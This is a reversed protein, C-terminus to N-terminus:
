LLDGFFLVKIQCNSRALMGCTIEESYSECSLVTLKESFSQRPINTEGTGYVTAVKTQLIRRRGASLNICGVPIRSCSHLEIQMHSKRNYVVFGIEKLEPKTRHKTIFGGRDGVHHSIKIRRDSSQRNGYSKYFM